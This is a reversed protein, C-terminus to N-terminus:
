RNMWEDIAKNNCHIWTEWNIIVIVYSHLQVHAQPIDKEEKCVVAVNIGKKMDTEQIMGEVPSVFKIASNSYNAQGQSEPNSELMDLHINPFLNPSFMDSENVCEVRIGYLKSNDNKQLQIPPLSSPLKSPILYKGDDTTFLIKLHELLFVTFDFDLGEGAELFKRLEEKSYVPRDPLKKFHSPFEEGALVKGIVNFCLWQINM